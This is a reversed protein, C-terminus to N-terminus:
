SPTRRLRRHIPSFLPDRSPSIKYPHAERCLNFKLFNLRVRRYLFRPGDRKAQTFKLNRPCTVFPLPAVRLALIRKLRMIRTSRICSACYVFSFDRLREYTRQPNAASVARIPCRESNCRFRKFTGCTRWPRLNAASSTFAARLDNLRVALSGPRYDGRCKSCAM